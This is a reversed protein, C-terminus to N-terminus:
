RSGWNFRANMGFNWFTVLIIALLNSAYLNWNFGTYFLHLLLVALGIGVACIGNFTLFRRL